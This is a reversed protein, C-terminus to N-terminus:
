YLFSFLSCNIVVTFYIENLLKVESNLSSSVVIEEAFEATHVRSGPM